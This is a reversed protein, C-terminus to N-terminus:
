VILFIFRNIFNLNGYRNAAANQQQADSDATRFIRCPGFRRGFLLFNDGGDEDFIEHHGIRLLDEDRLVGDLDHSGSEVFVVYEQEAGRRFVRGLLGFIKLGLDALHGLIVDYYGNGFRDVQARVLKDQLTVVLLLHQTRHGDVLRM